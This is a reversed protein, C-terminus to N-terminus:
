SRPTTQHTVLLDAFRQELAAIKPDIVARCYPADKHKEYYRQHYDEAPYFATFPRLETVIPASFSSAVQKIFAEATARQAETMYFIASRYQPGVDDGQRDPTTPDHTAFFVTLLDEYTIKAPDFEIRTSEAHGTTGTSVEDYSPHETHGGAYGPLASYIGKLRSFIAETCWFCGGAFIAIEKTQM